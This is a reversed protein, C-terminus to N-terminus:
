VEGNEAIKEEEYPAVRKRYLELKACELAGILENYVAYREGWNEGASEINALVSQLGDEFLHRREKKIYPM